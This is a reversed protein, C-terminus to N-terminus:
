QSLLAGRKAAPTDSGEQRGSRAKFRDFPAAHCALPLSPAHHWLRLHRECELRECLVLPPSSGSHSLFSRMLGDASVPFFPLFAPFLQPHFSRHNNPSKAHTHLLSYCVPLPLSFCATAELTNPCRKYLLAKALLSWSLVKVILRYKNM